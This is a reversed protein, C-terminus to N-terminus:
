TITTSGGFRDSNLIDMEEESKMNKKKLVHQFKAKPDLTLKALKEIIGMITDEMEM